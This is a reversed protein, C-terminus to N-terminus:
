YNYDENDIMNFGVSFTKGDNHMTIYEGTLLFYRETLNALGSKSSPETYKKANLTNSVQIKKGEQILMITLPCEKALVNHKIANEILPQLSLSPVLDKLREEDEIILRWELANGFRIKQMELYIKCIQLEEELTATFSKNHAVAVRLFESLRMLYFLSKEKDTNILSKLTSLSNFLFHPHIQQKLLLNEAEKNKTQLQSYALETEIRIRRAIVFDQLLLLISTIIVAIMTYAMLWKSDNTRQLIGAYSAFIHWFLQYLAIGAGYSLLYKWLRYRVPSNYFKATCYRRIYTLLFSTILIYIGSKVTMIVVVKRNEFLLLFFLSFIFICSTVLINLRFLDRLSQRSINKANQRSM